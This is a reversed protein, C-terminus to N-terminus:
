TTGAFRRLYPLRALWPDLRLGRSVGVGNEAAWRRQLPECNFILDQAEHGHAKLNRSYFDATGFRLALIRQLLTRYDPDGELLPPLAADLFRPYYSDVILFKM